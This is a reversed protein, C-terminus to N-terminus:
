WLSHAYWIEPHLEFCQHVFRGAFMFVDERAASTSVRDGEVGLFEFDTRCRIFDM